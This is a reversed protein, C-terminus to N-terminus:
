MDYDNMGTCYENLVNKSHVIFNSLKMNVKEYDINLLVREVDIHDNVIRNTLGTVELFQEIRAANNKPLVVAFNKNFIHSFATAHFSSAVVFVAHHIYGLFEDPAVDRIHLDCQCNKKVGYILVVKVNYKRKLVSLM